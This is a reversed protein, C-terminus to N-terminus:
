RVSEMFQSWSRSPVHSYKSIFLALRARTSNGVRAPCKRGRTISNQFWPYKSKLNAKFMLPSKCNWVWNSGTKKRAFNSLSCSGSPLQFCNISKFWFDPDSSAVMKLQIEKNISSQNKFSIPSDRSESAIFFALFNIRSCPPMSFACIM